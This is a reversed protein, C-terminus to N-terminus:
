PPTNRLFLVAALNPVRYEPPYRDVNYDENGSIQAGIRYGVTSMAVEVESVSLVWAPFPTKGTVQARVFAKRQTMPTMILLIARPEYTTFQKLLAIPERAYQLASSSYVIDFRADAPPLESRFTIRADDRWLARGADCVQPLEVVTYSLRQRLKTAYPLHRFDVGVGGGFDLIRLSQNDNASDIMAAVVPLLDHNQLLIPMGNADDLKPPERVFYAQSKALVEATEPTIERKGPMEEFSQYVGAFPPQPWILATRYLEFFRIIKRLGWPLRQAMTRLRTYTDTV